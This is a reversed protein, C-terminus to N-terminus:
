RASATAPNPELDMHCVPCKGPKSSASGECGMSCIFAAAVVQTSDAAAANGAGVTSEAAAATPKTECATLLGTSAVVLLGCAGRSLASIFTRM